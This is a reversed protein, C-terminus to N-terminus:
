KIIKNLRKSLEIARSERFETYIDLTTSIQAHGLVEQADKAAVGNEHLITAYAHRLQHPTFETQTERRYKILLDEVRYEKLLNGDDDCFIYGKKNKPLVDKLPALLPVARKGAETKPEKIYPKNNVYYVSKTVFVLNSKRDIDEYRLALAEGRRLGTYLIFFPFLGFTCSVSEKIKGLHASEPVSRKSKAGSCELGDIPNTDIYGMKRAYKFIGNFVLRQTQKVKLSPYKYQMSDIYSQVDRFTVNTIPVREFEEKARVFAPRYSRLTNAALTVSHKEWWEDAIPGFLEGDKKKEEFNKIKQLVESKSHGYFYKYKDNIRIREQWRGDKRKEM